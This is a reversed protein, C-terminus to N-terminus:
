GDVVYRRLVNEINEGNWMWRLLLLIPKIPLRYKNKLM